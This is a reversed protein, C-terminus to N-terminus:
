WDATAPATYKATTQQSFLLLAPFVLLIFLSILFDLETVQQLSSKWHRLPIHTHETTSALRRSRIVLINEM